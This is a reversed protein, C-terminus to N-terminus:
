VSIGTRSRLPCSGGRGMRSSMFLKWTTTAGVSFDRVWVSARRSAQRAPARTAVMGPMWSSVM